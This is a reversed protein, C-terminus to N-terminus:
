ENALLWRATDLLNTPIDKPVPLWEGEAHLRMAAERAEQETPFNGRCLFGLEDTENGSLGCVYLFFRGGFTITPPWKEDEEEETLLWPGSPTIVGFGGRKLHEEWEARRKPTLGQVRDFMGPKVDYQVFRRESRPLYLRMGLLEKRPLVDEFLLSEVAAYARTLGNDDAPFREIPEGPRERDWIGIFDSGHGAVYRAESWPLERQILRFTHGAELPRKFGVLEDGGVAARRLSEQLEHLKDMAESEGRSSRRFRAIPEEPSERDWIGIFDAGVGPVFRAERWPVLRGGVRFGETMWPLPAEYGGLVMAGVSDVNAPEVGPRPVPESEFPIALGLREHLEEVGEEALSWKRLIVEAIAPPDLKRPAHVSWKAFGAIEADPWDDPLKADYMEQALEGNIALRAVPGSEDAAVVYGVDSDYVWAGLAPGDAASAVRSVLDDLEAPKPLDADEDPYGTLWGNSETEVVHVLGVERIPDASGKVVVWHAFLGM